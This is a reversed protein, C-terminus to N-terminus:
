KKILVQFFRLKKLFGLDPNGLKIYILGLEIVILMLITINITEMYIVEM